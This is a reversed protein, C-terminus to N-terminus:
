TNKGKLKAIIKRQVNKKKMNELLRRFGFDSEAKDSNWEHLQAGVFRWGGAMSM